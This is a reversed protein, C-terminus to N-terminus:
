LAVDFLIFRTCQGSITTLNPVALFSQAPGYGAGAWGRQVLHLLGGMLALTGYQQIITRQEATKIDGLPNFQHVIVM